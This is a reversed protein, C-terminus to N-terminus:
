QGRQAPRQDLCIRGVDPVRHACGRGVAGPTLLTLQTFSRGNLPLEVVKENDVTTAVTATDTQLQPATASVEVTETVEGVELTMDVRLTQNVALQVATVVAKSFGALEAEISYVAPPLSPVTYGGTDNTTVSRATNTGTNTITVTVGPVLAASEDTVNGVITGFSTQAALPLTSVLAALTVFLLVKSKM